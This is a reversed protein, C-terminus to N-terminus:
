QYKKIRKAPYWQQHDNYHDFSDETSKPFEGEVSFIQFGCQKVSVLFASLYFDSIIEPLRMGLSNLNYWVNHIKRIAIWHAANNCIFAKKNNLDQKEGFAQISVMELNMKKLAEVQCISNCQLVQISYNGDMAVNGSEEKLYKMLDGTMGQQAM